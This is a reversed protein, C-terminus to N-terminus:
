SFDTWSRGSLKEALSSVTDEPKAINPFYKKSAQLGGPTSKIFNTLAHEGLLFIQYPANLNLSVRKPFLNFKRMAEATLEAISAGSNKWKLNITQAGVDVAFVALIEHISIVKKKSYAGLFRARRHRYPGGTDPCIYVDQNIEYLTKGSNVVDLLTRWKPLLDKSELYAKYEDLISALRDPVKLNEIAALLEEYSIPQLIINKAEATEMSESFRMAFDETEFNALLFLIKTEAASDFSDLHKQIQKTYHWDQLKTEVLISFSKQMIVLDPIGTNSKQQQYIKPGISFDVKDETLSVILEEFNKPNEEYILKFILGTYNTVRNEDQHYDAFLSIERSM